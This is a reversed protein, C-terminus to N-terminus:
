KRAGNEVRLMLQGCECRPPLSSFRKSRDESRRPRNACERGFNFRPILYIRPLFGMGVTMLNALPVSRLDRVLEPSGSGIPLGTIGVAHLRRALVIQFLSMAGAQHSLWKSECLANMSHSSAASNSRSEVRMDAARMDCSRPTQESRPKSAAALRLSPIAAHARPLSPRPSQPDPGTASAGSM